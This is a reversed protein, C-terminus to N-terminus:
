VLYNFDLIGDKFFGYESIIKKLYSILDIGMSEVIGEGENYRYILNPADSSTLLFMYHTECEKSIFFPMKNIMSSDIAEIEKRSENQFLLHNRISWGSSYMLLPENGFLGASFKGISNLFVYLQDTKNLKINYLKKIKEIEDLTYWSYIVEIYKDES